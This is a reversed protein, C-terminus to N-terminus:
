CRSSIKRPFIGMILIFIPESNPYSVLVAQILDQADAAQDLMYASLEIFEDTRYRKEYMRVFAPDEDQCGTEIISLVSM